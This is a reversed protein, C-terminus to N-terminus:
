PGEWQRVIASPLEPDGRAAGGIEWGGASTLMRAMSNPILKM